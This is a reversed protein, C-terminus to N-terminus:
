SWPLQFPSCGLLAAQEDAHPSYYHLMCPHSMLPPTRGVDIHPLNGQIDAQFRPWLYLKRVYLAKLVKEIQACCGDRM